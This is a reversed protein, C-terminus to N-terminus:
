EVPGETFEVCEAAIGLYAMADVYHDAKRPSEERRALKVALLLMPVQDVTLDVGTMARFIQVVRLMNKVPPGYDQERPGTTVDRAQELLRKRLPPDQTSANAVTTM